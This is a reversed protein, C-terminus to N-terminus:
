NQHTIASFLGDFLASGRDELVTDSLRQKLWGRLITDIGVTEPHNYIGDHLDIEHVIEAMKSLGVATIQFSNILTEFTCLNGTHGFQADPMDFSIETESAQKNYRIIAASDIFRRILWISSLRDVHPQPRTVWTKNQFDAPNYVQLDVAMGSEGSLKQELQALRTEVINGEPCNFYDIRNVDSFQRRLKTVNLPLDSLDATTAETVEKELLSIEDLIADYDKKRTMCFLEILENERMGEIQESYFMIAQGGAEQIEQTLWQFSEVCEDLAPLVYLNGAPAVAGLRQLRRWLAVRASSQNKSLSYAFTVWAM